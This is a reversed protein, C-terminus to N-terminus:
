FLIVRRCLEVKKNGTAACKPVRVGLLVPTPTDQVFSYSAKGGVIKKQTETKQSALYSEPANDFIVTVGEFDSPSSGEILKSIEEATVTITVSQGPIAQIEEVCDAYIENDRGSKDYGHKYGAEFGATTATQVPKLIVYIEKPPIEPKINDPINDTDGSQDWEGVDVILQDIRTNGDGGIFQELETRQALAKIAPAMTTATQKICIGVFDGADSGAIKEFKDM